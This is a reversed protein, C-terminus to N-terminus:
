TRSYLVLLDRFVVDRSKFFQEIKAYAASNKVHPSAASMSGEIDLEVAAAMNGFEQVTGILWWQFYPLSVARDANAKYAEVARQLQHPVALNLYDRQIWEAHRMRLPPADILNSLPNIHGCHPCNQTNGLVVSFPDRLIDGIASAFTKDCNKCTVFAQSGASM